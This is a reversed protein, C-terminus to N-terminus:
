PTYENNVPAPRSLSSSARSSHDSTGRIARVSAGATTKGSVLDAGNGAIPAAGAEAMGVIRGSTGPNAGGGGETSAVATEVAGSVACGKASLGAVCGPDTTAALPM